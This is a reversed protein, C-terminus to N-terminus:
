RVAQRLVEHFRDLAAVLDGSTVLARGEQLLAALAALRTVQGPSPASIKAVAQNYADTAVSQGIRALALAAHSMAVPREGQPVALLTSVVEALKKIAAERQGSALLDLAGDAGRGGDSGDLLVVARAAAARAAASATPDVALRRLDDLVRTLAQAPTLVDLGWTDTGSGGDDDVVTLALIVAGPRSYTHPEHAVTGTGGAPNGPPGSPTETVTGAVPASGDGWDLSATHTDASGPDLFSAAIAVPVHPLAFAPGEGVSDITPQPDRNAVALETTQCTTADDDDRVCVEVAYTGDDAYVHTASLAGAVSTTANSRTLTVAEVAVGDGWDVTATHTDAPGADAYAGSLTVVQGEGPHATFTPTVTPAANTVTITASATDTGDDDIVALRLETQGDDVGTITPATVASPAVTAVAQDDVAWNFTLPDRDGDWSTNDAQVATGELLEYPGGAGAIPAQAPRRVDHNSSWAAVTSVRDGLDQSEIGPMAGGSPYLKPLWQELIRNRYALHGKANPHATGSKEGQRDFTETLLGVMWTDDACVGHGKFADYIGSVRTWDWREASFEIARGLTTEVKEDLWKFEEASVGPLRINRFFHLLDTSPCYSLDDNRTADVYESVFVRDPAIDAMLGGPGTLATNLQEYLGSVRWTAPDSPDGSGFFGETFFREATKGTFTALFDNLVVACVAAAAVAVPSKPGGLLVLLTGCVGAVLAQDVHVRDEEGAEVPNCPAQALCALVIPAFNSDNGGISVYLADIERDGILTKAQDLQPPMPPIVGGATARAEPSDAGAYEGLIGHVLEAGSCALHVFTVSTRPDGRELDMAAQASGAKSTRHCRRDQWVPDTFATKDIDPNGEGSGYSDGLSVILLDQIVVEGVTTATGTASTATLRLRYTGEAPFTAVFGDCDTGSTPSFTIRPDDVASWTYTVAGPHAGESGCANLNAGWTPPEIARTSTPGQEACPGDDDECRVGGVFADIVGDTNEDLGYRDPVTYDFTAGQGTTGAVSAAQLVEAGTTEFPLVAAIVGLVVIVVASRWSM